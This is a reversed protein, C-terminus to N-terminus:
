TALSALVHCRPVGGLVGAGLEFFPSEGCQVHHLGTSVGVLLDRIVEADRDVGDVGPFLPEFALTAQLGGGRRTPGGRRVGSPCCFSLVRRCSPARACPKGSAVQVM